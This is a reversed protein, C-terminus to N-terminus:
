SKLKSGSSTWGKKGPAWDAKAKMRSSVVGVAKLARSVRQISSAKGTLVFHASSAAPRSVEAKVAALHADDPTREILMAQGLGITELVARSEAVDSAEFVHMASDAQSERRLAAALGFSTEDGFLIIPSRLGSLRAFPASRLVPLQRRRAPRKGM